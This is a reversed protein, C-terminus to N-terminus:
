VFSVNDILDDASCTQEDASVAGGHVLELQGTLFLARVLKRQEETTDNLFWRKFFYIDGITYTREPRLLLQELVGSFIEKVVTYCEDVNFVWGADLHSHTIVHLTLKEGLSPVM